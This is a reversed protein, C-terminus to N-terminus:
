SNLYKKELLFCPLKNIWDDNFEEKKETTMVETIPIKDLNEIISQLSQERSIDDAVRVYGYKESVTTTKVVVRLLKSM